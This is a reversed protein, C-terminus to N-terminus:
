GLVGMGRDSARYPAINAANENQQIKAFRIMMIAYRVASIVDDHEKVVKGDKRHYLRFEDFFMELHRAVKFRGTQMRDLMDMLGAEVSNGGSGEENGKAAPHTAKNRLMNLGLKHYQTALNEGAATDNNGDHPWSVPIWAGKSKFTAAHIIPSAESVRYVDYVHVTDTDRDWAIWAGATPHDWGFDIGAIRPWHRPLNFVGEKILNEDVPFIAGSGLTPTGESRAAREHSPYSAIISKRQEPTYHMADEIGMKTVHTGAPKDMLFKKVVNSMGQLPTFTIFAIGSVGEAGNSGVNTRTLGESYIDEDPEEDFWVFDLSPGQWKERGAAYAKFSVISIGGSKHRVKISDVADAVGHSARTVDIINKKPIAGTGWAGPLGLLIKQPNDRTSESTVGSAWGVVRRKWRKGAWWDPYEGTLHMAVEFGASLTKGLQNGAVLLRERVDDFGGADHFDHQKPYPCYDRLRNESLRREVETSLRARLEPTLDALSTM